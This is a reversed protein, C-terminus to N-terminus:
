CSYTSWYLQRRWRSLRVRIDDHQLIKTRTDWFIVNISFMGPPDIFLSRLWWMIKSLILTKAAKILIIFIGYFFQLEQSLKENNMEGVDYFNTIKTIIELQENRWHWWWSFFNCRLLFQSTWLNMFIMVFWSGTAYMPPTDFQDVRESHPKTSLLVVDHLSDM